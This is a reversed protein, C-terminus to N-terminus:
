QFTLSGLVPLQGKEPAIDNIPSILVSDIEGTAASIAERIHSVFLVQDPAAQRRMLSRLEAEVAARVDATNPTLILNVNVVLPSPAFVLLQGGVPRLADVHAFVEAVKAASPIPGGLEDDTAFTVGASGIAPFRPFCWARTVGSVELTWREFDARNGAAPLQRTRQLVRARLEETDEADAGGGIGSTSVTANSAIGAIPSTLSMLVGPATNAIVGAAFAQVPVVAVSGAIIAPATTFYELGDARRVRRRFPIVTGNVGTLHISGSAFTAPKRAIGLMTAWSEVCEADGTTPLGQRAAWAIHGHLGHSHGALVDGLVALVSRPLLPGTGLRAQVQSASRARLQELTPRPFPM